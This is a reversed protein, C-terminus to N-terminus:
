NSVGGRSLFSLLLPRMVIPFFTQIPSLAVMSGPIDIPSPAMTAAFATTVLSTGAKQVTAPM